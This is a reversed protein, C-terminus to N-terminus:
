SSNSCPVNAPVGVGGRSSSGGCLLKELGPIGRDVVSKKGAAM